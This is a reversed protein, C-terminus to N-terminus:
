LALSGGSLSFRYSDRRPGANDPAHRGLVGGSVLLEPAIAHAGIVRHGKEELLGVVARLLHDDGRAFLDRLERTNRLATLAGFFAAPHPRTVAGALVVADPRWEDLLSLARSVDLLDIVADACRRVSRDAFGRFAIVRRPQGARELAALLIAPLAGGGALIVVLGEAPARETM